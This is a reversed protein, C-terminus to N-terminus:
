HLVRLVAISTQAKVPEKNEEATSVQEQAPEVVLEAVPESVPESIPEKVAETEQFNEITSQKALPEGTLIASDPGLVVSDACKSPSDPDYYAFFRKYKQVENKLEDLEWNDVDSGNEKLSNLYQVFKDPHYGAEIIAERLYIQKIKREEEIDAM